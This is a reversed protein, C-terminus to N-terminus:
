RALKRRFDWRGLGGTGDIREDNVIRGVYPGTDRPNGVQVWRGVLRLRDKGERVAELLWTINKFPGEKDTYLVYVRGKLTKIKAVGEGEEWRGSWDGDLSGPKGKTKKKVWQKANKDNVGGTLTVKKAFQKVDEGYPDNVDKVGFPNRLQEDSSAPSVMLALVFVWTILWSVRM